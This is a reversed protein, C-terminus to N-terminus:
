LLSMTMLSLTSAGACMGYREPASQLEQCLVVVYATPVKPGIFMVCAVCANTVVVQLVQWPVAVTETKM